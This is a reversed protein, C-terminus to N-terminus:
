WRRRAGSEMGCQRKPQREAGQSTVTHLRPTNSLSLPPSRAMADGGGRHEPREDHRAAEEAVKVSRPEDHHAAADRQGGETAHEDGDGGSSDIGRGSQPDRQRRLRREAGHSTLCPPCNCQAARGRHRAGRWQRQRQRSPRATRATSGRRSNRRGRASTATPPQLTSSVRRPTSMAM